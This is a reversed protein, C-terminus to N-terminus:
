KKKQERSTRPSCKRCLTRDYNEKPPFFFLFFVDTCWLSIDRAQCTVSKKKLKRKKKSIKKKKAVRKSPPFSSFSSVRQSFSFSNCSPPTGLSFSMVHGHCAIGPCLYLCLSRICSSICSTLVPASTNSCRCLCMKVGALTPCKM